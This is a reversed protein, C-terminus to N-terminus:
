RTTTRRTATARSTDSISHRGASGTPAFSALLSASLFNADTIPSTSVRLDYLSATGVTGDDGPAPWTLMVASCATTATLNVASPPVIDLVIPYPAAAGTTWMTTAQYSAQAGITPARGSRPERAGGMRVRVTPTVCARHSRQVGVASVAHRSGCDIGLVPKTPVDAGHTFYVPAIWLGNVRERFAIRRNAGNVEEWAVGLKSSGRERDISERRDLGLHHYRRCESAANAADMPRARQSRQLRRRLGERGQHVGASIQLRESPLHCPVVRNGRHRAAPVPQILWEDGADQLLLHGRYGPWADAWVVSMADPVAISTPDGAIPLYVPTHWTVGNDYNSSRYVISGGDEIWSLFVQIQDEHVLTYTSIAPNKATTAGPSMLREVEWGASRRNRLYWISGDSEYAAHYSPGVWDFSERAQASQQAM